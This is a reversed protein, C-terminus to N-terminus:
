HGLLIKSCHSGFTLLSHVIDKQYMPYFFFGWMTAFSGILGYKIMGGTTGGPKIGLNATMRQTVMWGARVTTGALLVTNIFWTMRPYASGWVAWSWWYAVTASVPLNRFVILNGQIIDELLPITRLVKAWLGLQYRSNSFVGEVARLGYTVVNSKRVWKTQRIKQLIGPQLPSLAEGSRAVVAHQLPLGKNSHM